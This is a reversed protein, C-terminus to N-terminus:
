RRFMKDALKPRQSTQTTRKSKEAKHKKLAKFGEKALRMVRGGEKADKVANSRIQDAKIYAKQKIAEKRAAKYTENYLEQEDKHQQYKNKAAQILKQKQAELAGWVSM